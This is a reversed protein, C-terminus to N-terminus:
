YRRKRSFDTSKVFSEDVFALLEELSKNGELHGIERGNLFLLTSPMSKVDYFKSSEPSEDVDCVYFHAYPIIESLELFTPKYTTCYKCWSATFAVLALGDLNVVLEDFTLDNVTLM